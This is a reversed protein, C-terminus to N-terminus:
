SGCKEFGCTCKECGESFQLTAGCEPCKAKSKVGDKIFRKIARLVGNKWSNLLDEGLDLGKIVEVLHQLPMGHRMLGSILKAYNHYEPNFQASITISTGNFRAVYSKEGDKVVKEIFIDKETKIYESLEENMKGVFIEYPRNDMLGIFAVWKEHNNQFGIVQAPLRKPRKPADNDTIKSGTSNKDILVGTRSGERYVTVGKCGSKWGEVYVKEVIEETADEPLNVTVSISHDIHKQIKGQMRVKAVWDLDEATSKYYPSEKIVEGLESDSMEELEAKADQIWVDKYVSYWFIFNNHFINYEQWADGNQDVFDVRGGENPNIKKRRKYSVKFVPEIGSTLGGAVLSTTGTPAITLMSINRRRLMGSVNMDKMRKLFPNGHEKRHDYIPFEGRESAMLVSSRYANRKHAEMVAELFNTASESGYAGLDLSVRLSALMDGAGTVGLGTRRGDVAKRRIKQWLKREVRKVEEDEPDSDIKELISDIKEIELDVMDDMLRMAKEVHRGYKAFDFYADKTFPAVVYSFLNMAMLRCSDYPCLPIEGCPNTSVEKWDDGYGSPISERIITDWFLFAPEAKKWSNHIVTKWLEKDRGQKLWDFAELHSLVSEMFRDTAKLSINAGTVKDDELKANAFDLADPHDVSCSLMLAGRRGDQAVERTSNSFREMFPVIGTSSLASNNVKSGKGRIHSLDHGVGGRRKMLQIQEQDTLMIGGYSDDQNGIVFCNSLSVTQLDNGIGAMPSGQPLIFEFDKLLGYIEEESMPNQYKKEIRAFEKALRRHMDDPTKEYINGDSDKLAYKNIWVTTALEDGKFYKLAEREVIERDIPKRM